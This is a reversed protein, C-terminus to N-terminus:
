LMVNKIEYFECCCLHHFCKAFLLQVVTQESLTGFVLCAAFFIYELMRSDSGRWTGGMQYYEFASNILQLATITSGVEHQRIYELEYCM